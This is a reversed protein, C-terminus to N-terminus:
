RHNVSASSHIHLIGHKAYDVGIYWTVVVSKLLNYLSIERLFVRRRRARERGWCNQTSLVHYFLLSSTYSCSRIYSCVNILM